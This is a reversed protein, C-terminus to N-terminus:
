IRQPMGLRNLQNLMLSKLIMEQHQSMMKRSKLRDGLMGKYRSIATEAISRQHYGIRSKWEKLGGPNQYIWRIHEDRETRDSGIRYRAGKRPPTILMIARGRAERYMEHTDGSGDMIVRRVSGPCWSIATKFLGSDGLSDDSTINFLIEHTKPCVGLTMKKWKKRRKEGHIKVHWEGEGYIKVGTSDIVLDTPKIRSLRKYDLSIQRMRRCIRTYSPTNLALHMLSFVSRIFGETSRLSLHFFFRLMCAAEIAMDSYLYPRGVSRKKSQPTWNKLVDESVWFTLSGRNILSKNYESWNCIKRSM